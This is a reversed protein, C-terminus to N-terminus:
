YGTKIKKPKKVTPGASRSTGIKKSSSKKRGRGNKSAKGWTYSEIAM